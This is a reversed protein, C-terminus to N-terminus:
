SLDTESLVSLIDTLEPHGFSKWVQLLMKQL